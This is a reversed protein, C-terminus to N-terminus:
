VAGTEAPEALLERILGELESVLEAHHRGTGPGAFGSHIKRVKGDRGLFITTPFALVRDIDPLTEAAEAKDSTGALLLPYAISHREAFLSVMSRDRQEDGTLEYALGVVELGQDQYRRHWAALLPAEDHCNPCWSGFISVVVVKGEFRPDESSVIEGLEGGATVEPFAFRLQGEDGRLGVAGWADPLVTEGEGLPRATWTAHYIDRSWFDGELTGDDRARAHFLFAHAGDFGSLRLLGDVFNGALFRYDGTPTLFTGTVGSGAQVLEARAPETGDEDTFEAAWAGSVEVLAASGREQPEHFRGAVGKEAVFPLMSQGEAMTRRWRGELRGPAVLDATIEADYWDFSLIVTRGAIELESVPALEAGNRISARLWDRDDEILLGFPLEGGPSQLVARWLGVLESPAVEETGCGALCLALLAACILQRFRGPQQRPSLHRRPERSAPFSPSRTPM